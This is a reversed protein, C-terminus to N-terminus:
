VHNAACWSVVAAVEDVDAPRVVASAEGRFRGTWDVEYGARVDPDTVVHEDGVIAILGAPDSVPSSVSWYARVGTRHGMATVGFGARSEGSGNASRAWATTAGM